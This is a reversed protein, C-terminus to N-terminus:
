QKGPTGVKEDAKIGGADKIVQALAKMDDASMNKLMAVVKEKSTRKSLEAQVAKQEKRIAQKKAELTNVLSELEEITMEGLKVDTKQEASM